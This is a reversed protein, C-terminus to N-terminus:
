LVRRKIKYKGAQLDTEWCKKTRSKVEKMEKIKGFKLDNESDYGHKDNYEIKALKKIECLNFTRIWIIYKKGGKEIIEVYYLPGRAKRYLREPVKFLKLQEEKM